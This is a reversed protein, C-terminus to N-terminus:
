TTSILLWIGGIAVLVGLVARGTVRDGLTAAIPLVFLPSTALLAQAIGAPTYKFSIQQLWIALYTGFFAAIIIVPILQRSRLPRLQDGVQGRWGMLVVLVALGAAIRLFGSWLPDIATDALVGRSMVAGSAQGLAALLGWIVGWRLNPSAVSNVVDSAVDSAPVRESIVWAVGLLTFVIGLWAITGLREELFFLAILAALPPALSEMLLARRAGLGNIAKFYATDGLGIGIAGSLLLWFTATASLEPQVNPRLVLTLSILAIAVCGKALNLVLPSISKGLRGFIVTSVAWLFAATLAAVEGRM